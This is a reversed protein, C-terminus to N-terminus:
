RTMAVQEALMYWAQAALSLLPVQVQEVPLLKQQGLQHAL